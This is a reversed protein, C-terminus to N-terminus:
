SLLLIPIFPAACSSVLLEGRVLGGEIGFTVDGRARIMARQSACVGFSSKVCTRQMSRGRKSIAQESMIVKTMTMLLHKIVADMHFKIIYQNIKGDCLKQNIYIKWFIHLRYKRKV